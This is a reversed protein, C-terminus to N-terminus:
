RNMKRHRFANMLLGVLSLNLIMSTGGYSMFPLPIGMVPMLGIAMGINVLWHYGFITATGIAILSYFKSETESALRIAKYILAAHLLVVLLSGVFGFEEAPVSFIFDTWQMPIYRLQTQTGQLFGKGYVGGSGVALISQIVNYGAGRPNSGPNILTEIRSKQHPQLKEYINPAVTGMIVFVSIAAITIIIKRRFLFAIGGLIAVVIIFSTSGFLSALVIIPLCLLFYLVFSNYGSWFLIGFLLAILVTASGMDPQRLILFVPVITLGVAFGLDRLTRIDSGKVSLRMALIMLLGLKAFESPQLSFGGFRIWGQTGHSEVGVFLVAVLLFISGIYAPYSSSELLREPLFSIAIMFVFGISAALLQRDFYSSMHSDYTASYISILGITVLVATILFSSWDFYLTAHKRINPNIEFSM